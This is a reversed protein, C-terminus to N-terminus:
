ALPRDPQDAISRDPQDDTIPQYEAIIQQDPHYHAFHHDPQDQM